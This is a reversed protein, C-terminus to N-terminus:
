GGANTGLEFCQFQYWWLLEVEAEADEENGDGYVEADSELEMPVSSRDEDSLGADPDHYSVLAAQDCSPHHAWPSPTM